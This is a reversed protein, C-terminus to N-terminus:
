DDYVRDPFIRTIANDDSALMAYPTVDPRIRMCEGQLRLWGGPTATEGEDGQMWRVKPENFTITLPQNGSLTLTYIGDAFGDPIQLKFSQRNQQLLEVPETRVGDSLVANWEQDLYEGQVGTINGARVVTNGSYFVAPKKM